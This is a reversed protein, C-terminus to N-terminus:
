LSAQVAHCVALSVLLLRRICPRTLQWLTSPHAVAAADTSALRDHVENSSRHPAGVQSSFGFIDYIGVLAVESDGTAYCPVGGLEQLSGQPIYDISVPAGAACCVDM